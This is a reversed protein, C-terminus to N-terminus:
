DHDAEESVSSAQRRRRILEALYQALQRRQGLTLQPWLRPPASAAVAPKLHGRTSPRANLSM